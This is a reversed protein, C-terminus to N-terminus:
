QIAKVAEDVEKKTVNLKKAKVELGKYQPLSVEPYVDFTFSVKFDKGREFKPEAEVNPEFYGCIEKALDKDAYVESAKENFIVNLADEYLSEVGYNKEYVSRPAKGARFGKITVKANKKEFAKDLAKEFEEATVDFVAKVRSHELKETVM